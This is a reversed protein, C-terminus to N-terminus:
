RRSNLTAHTFDNRQLYPFRGEAKLPCLSGCFRGACVVVFDIFNFFDTFYTRDSGAVNLPFPIVGMAIWKIVMEVVFIFQFVAEAVTYARNFSSGPNWYDTHPDRKDAAMFVANIIICFLIGRALHSDLTLSM